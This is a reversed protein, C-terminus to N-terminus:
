KSQSGEIGLLYDPAPKGITTNPIAKNEKM